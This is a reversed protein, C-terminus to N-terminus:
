NITALYHVVGNINRIVAAGDVAPPMLYNPTILKIAGKNDGVCVGEATAWIAVNGEVGEGLFAGDILTDSFPIADLGLTPEKRYEAPDDAFARKEVLYWTKGDAVYVGEDVPRLMTIDNEFVRFGTRIDYHDCLADSIYLVKGKAVLLKGKHYAVRQGAPLVAKYNEAPDALDYMALNNYYGIYTGNTMYVRDNVPCYSMRSSAMPSLLETTTYDINLLYLMTGDIFFGLQGQAWFSHIKTGSLKKTSGDRSVLNYSDLIDVNV